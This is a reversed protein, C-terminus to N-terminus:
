AHPSQEASPTSPGYAAHVAALDAQRAPNLVGDTFIGTAPILYGSYDTSEGLFDAGLIRHVQEHLVLAGLSWITILAVRRPDAASEVLWGHDVAATSYEQADSVMEDVLEDVRNSGESLVRTLYRLLTRGAEVQSLSLLSGLADGQAQVSALKYDRVKDCAYSDCAALLGAKSHFHHLILSQSVEAAAAIRKLSTAASGHHGVLDLTAALIRERGDVDTTSSSTGQSVM